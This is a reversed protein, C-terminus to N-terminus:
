CVWRHLLTTLRACPAPTAGPTDFRSRGPAIPALLTTPLDLSVAAHALTATRALPRSQSDAVIRPADDCTSAFGDLVHAHLAPQHDPLPSNSPESTPLFWHWHLIAVDQAIGAGPHWRLLHDHHDCVEGPADHHRINHFDPQPLPTHVHSFILLIIGLSRAGRQGPRNRLRM